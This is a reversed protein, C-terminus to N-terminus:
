RPGAYQIGHEVEAIVGKLLGIAKLRHGGKDDAADNLDRLALKLTVLAADMHFQTADALAVPSVIGLAAAAGVAAVVRLSNRRTLRTM